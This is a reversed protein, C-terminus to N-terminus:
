RDRRSTPTSPTRGPTRPNPTRAIVPVRTSRPQPGRTRDRPLPGRGRLSRALVGRGVGGAPPCTWQSQQDFVRGSVPVQTPQQSRGMRVSPVVGPPASLLRPHSELLDFLVTLSQHAERPTRPLPSHGPRPLPALGCAPAASACVAARPRRGRGSGSRAAAARSADRGRACGNARRGRRAAGRGRRPSRCRGSGRGGGRARRCSAKTATRSPVVSSAESGGRRPM